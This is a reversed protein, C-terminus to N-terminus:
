LKIGLADRLKEIATKEIRSIYSRSIGLLVAVEKQSLPAGNELGYRKIIVSREREGLVSEIADKLKECMINRDIEEDINEESGLVDAYTLPNGDKDVDITENISIVANQKKEHRFHMLIENQICRAAYTAFKAGNRVDFSDVAKILGITGISNLDETAPHSSYYKRILHSVLRLNHLILKERAKANGKRAETFLVREESPELAEPYSSSPSVTLGVHLFHAFVYLMHGLM